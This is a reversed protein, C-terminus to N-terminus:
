HRRPEEPPLALTAHDDSGAPFRVLEGNKTETEFRFGRGILLTIREQGIKKRLSRVLHDITRTTARRTQEDPWAEMLVQDKSVVAPAHRILVMLVEVENSSLAVPAGHLEATFTRFDVVLGSGEFRDLRGDGPAFRRLIADVRAGLERVSIPKALCDDAGLEFGTIRDDASRKTLLLIPMRRTTDSSRLEKCLTFGSVDPLEHDIIVFDYSGQELAEEAERGRRFPDVRYGHARLESLIEGSLETNGEILAIRRM